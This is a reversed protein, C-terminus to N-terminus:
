KMELFDNALRAFEIRNSMMAPHGGSKFIHIQGHGIKRVFDEYVNQYFDFDLQSLFEDEMSGTLLIDAHLQSLSKHFFSKITKAHECIAQTDNDVVTEWNDGHMAHYFMNAGLDLKSESRSEWINQTFVEIAKEGEFSDAIVKNVLEPAELAVNIAVLAGGSSGILDVTEYSKEKLFQIVQQAEDYWLDTSFKNLRDSQGHGLFDILIVKHNDTFDSVIDLFMNSSATNGHLLLLPRGKGLEKYYVKNSQYNFFSM